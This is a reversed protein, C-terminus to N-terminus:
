VQLAGPLASWHVQVGAIQPSPKLAAASCHSGPAGGLVGAQKNAALPITTVGYISPDINSASVLNNFVDSGSVYMGVTGAAFAQNIDSWGYDFSSGMSKDNWRMDHLVQLAQKTEPNDLTAKASTGSGTEMRGGLSYALTTLIWGASNDNKGM